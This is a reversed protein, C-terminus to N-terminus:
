ERNRLIVMIDQLRPLLKELLPGPPPGVDWACMRFPEVLIGVREEHEVVRVHAFVITSTAM